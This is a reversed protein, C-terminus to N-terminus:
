AELLFPLILLIGPTSDDTKVSGGVSAATEKLDTWTDNQAFAAASLLDGECLFYVEPNKDSKRPYISIRGGSTMVNVCCEICEFLAKQLQIPHTLVPISEEPTHVKLVIHKNRAFRMSLTVLQETIRYLDIETISEDTSHAFKNLRNTLEVGRTIQDKIRDLAIQIKDQHSIIAEPSIALIDEMLGSAEQIIALVNRIEHTIGATIKGFFAVKKDDQAKM